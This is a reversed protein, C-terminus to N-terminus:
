TTKLVKKYQPNLTGAILFETKRNHANSMLCAEALASAGDYMSANAVDMGTLSCIMSQYEFIYQLTGQSIEPQYPTYATYFESRSVITRIASPIFQDYAGGGLYSVYDATSTNSSALGELLRKVEQESMAPFVELAKKLRIEEPIDPILDDFSAAGLVSLMERTDQDTNVIFPM